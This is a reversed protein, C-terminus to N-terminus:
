RLLTVSGQRILEDNNLCIVRAYYAYVAPESLAGKYFGDWGMKPDNTEFVKEGWRNYVIFFLEKIQNGRVYLKDNDGDKNPTFANAVFVESEGCSLQIVVIRLQSERKCEFSDSMVLQYTVTEPPTAIPNASTASSLWSSPTWLYFFNTQSPIAHIVTSQGAYLTDDDVSTELTPLTSFPVFVTVNKTIICTDGDAAIATIAVTYTTTSSINVIPNAATDSSLGTSTDM